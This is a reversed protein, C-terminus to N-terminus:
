LTFSFQFCISEGCMAIHTKNSCKILVNFAKKQVRMSNEIELERQPRQFQIIRFFILSQSIKQGIIIHPYPSKLTSWIFSIHRRTVMFKFKRDNDSTTTLLSDRERSHSTLSSGWHSESWIWERTMLIGGDCKCFQMRGRCKKWWKQTISDSLTMNMNKAEKESSMSTHKHIRCFISMIVAVLGKWENRGNQQMKKLVDFIFKQM